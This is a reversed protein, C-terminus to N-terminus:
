LQLTISHVDAVTQAKPPELQVFFVLLLIQFNSLELIENQFNSLELIENLIM